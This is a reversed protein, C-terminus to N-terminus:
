GYSGGWVSPSQEPRVITACPSVIRPAGECRQYRKLRTVFAAGSSNTTAFAAISEFAAAREDLALYNAAFFSRPQRGSAEYLM